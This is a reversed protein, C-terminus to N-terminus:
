GGERRRDVAGAVPRRQGCLCCGRRVPAPRASGFRAAASALWCLSGARLGARPGQRLAPRGAARVRCPGDQFVRPDLNCAITATPLDQLAVEEMEGDVFSWDAQAEAPSRLLLAAGEEEDEEKEEAKGAPPLPPQLLPAPEEQGAPGRGSGSEM